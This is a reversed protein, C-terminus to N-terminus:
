GLRSRSRPGDKRLAYLDRGGGTPRQHANQFFHGRDDKHRTRFRLPVLLEISQGIIEARAWGLLQESLVNVMVITGRQDVMIM